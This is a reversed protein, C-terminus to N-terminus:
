SCLVILKTFPILIVNIGIQIVIFTNEWQSKGFSDWGSGYYDMVDADPGCFEVFRLNGLDEATLESATTVSTHAHGHGCYYGKTMGHSGTSTTFGAVVQVLRQFSTM